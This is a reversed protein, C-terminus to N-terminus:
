LEQPPEVVEITAEEKRIGHERLFSMAGDYTVFMHWQNEHLVRWRFPQRKGETTGVIVAVVMVVVFLLVAWIWVDDALLQLIYQM